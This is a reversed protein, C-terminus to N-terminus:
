LRYTKAAEHRADLVERVKRALADPTFPKQLFATHADLVGRHVIANNTYGSMYLVTMTPQLPALRDALQRGSMGPMVVDTLMLHIPGAHRECIRLAESGHGAELVTYGNAQLIDRALDRVATEDEVLLITERGHASPAPLPPSEVPGAVQAVRPLYIKFTTGRGPESYVWIHGGSQKVIGYVTALGLGTGQGPGKTTFFPEFIRARTDPDMGVGTDSVALMVHPGPRVEVHRRAYAPDLEINATELTLRGGEPMADRANMVLNVVIQEVQSPDAEVCGLAPDLVTILAVDEGIVRNLLEGSKAVVANLNLVTPQLIQKRSFALLQRTLDTARGATHEILEIAPRVPDEPTLQRLLLQSRGIMVTLLNNFDHAVGGALRGVAEMKRAQTLQDQTESLEEYARQTEQYLRSNELAIAAQSAFATVLQLDESSFGRARRTRISLVGLVEAGLKLPVGLFARYGGRRYAERHAPTLRPDAAPNRVVLSEGKAAVIGTLSEGIKLRPTSMAERADGYAGALVLGDGDRVRIGVSDSDLLHGCAEAMKGLLAELPQIRSLERSIALLAELRAHRPMRERTSETMARAPAPVVKAKV